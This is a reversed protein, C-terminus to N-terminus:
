TIKNTLKLKCASRTTDVSKSSMEKAWSPTSIMPTTPSWTRSGRRYKLTRKLLIAKRWNGDADAYKKLQVFPDNGPDDEDPHIGLVRLESDDARDPIPYGKRDRYDGVRWGRAMWSGISNIEKFLIVIRADIEEGTRIM